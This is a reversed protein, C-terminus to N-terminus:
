YGETHERLWENLEEETPERGLEGRLRERVYEREGRAADELSTDTEEAESGDAATTNLSAWLAGNRSAGSPAHFDQQYPM